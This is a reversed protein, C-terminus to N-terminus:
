GALANAHGLVALRVLGLAATLYPLGDSHDCFSTLLRFSLMRSNSLSLRHHARPALIGASITVARLANADITKTAITIPTARAEIKQGRILYSSAM